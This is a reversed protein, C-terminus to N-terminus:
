TKHEQAKSQCGAHIKTQKRVYFKIILHFSLKQRQFFFFKKRLYKPVFFNKRQRRRRGKSILCKMLEVFMQTKTPIIIKIQGTRGCFRGRIGNDTQHKFM